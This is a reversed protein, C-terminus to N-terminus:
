ELIDKWKQSSQLINWSPTVAGDANDAVIAYNAADIVIAEVADDAEADAVDAEAKNAKASAVIRVLAVSISM